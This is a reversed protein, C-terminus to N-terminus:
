PASAARTLGRALRPRRVRQGGVDLVQLKVKDVTIVGSANSGDAEIDIAVRSGRDTTTGKVHFSKAKKLAAESRNLIV